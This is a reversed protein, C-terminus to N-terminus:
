FINKEYRIISLHQTKNQITILHFTGLHDAIDTIIIGSSYRNIDRIDNIHDILTATPPILRIPKHILLAFGRSLVNDSYNTTKRRIGYKLLDINFDGMIVSTKFETNLIDM